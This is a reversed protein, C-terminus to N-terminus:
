YNDKHPLGLIKAMTETLNQLKEKVNGESIFDIDEEPFDLCAEVYM